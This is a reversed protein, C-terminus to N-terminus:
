LLKIKPALLVCSTAVPAPFPIVILPSNDDLPLARLRETKRLTPLLALMQSNFKNPEELRASLTSTLFLLALLPAFTEAILETSEPLLVLQLKLTGVTKLTLLGFAM